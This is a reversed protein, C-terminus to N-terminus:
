PLHVNPNQIKSKSNQIKFKPRIKKYISTKETSLLNNLGEGAAPLDPPGDNRDDAVRKSRAIVTLYGPL